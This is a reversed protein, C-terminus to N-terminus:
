QPAIASRATQWIARRPIASSVLPQSESRRPSWSAHSTCWCARPSALCRARLPTCHIGVAHQWVADLHQHVIIASKIHPRVDPHFSAAYATHHLELLMADPVHQSEAAIRRLALVAEDLNLAAESAGEVQHLVDSALVSVVKANSDSAVGLCVWIGDTLVGLLLVSCIPLVNMVQFLLHARARNM